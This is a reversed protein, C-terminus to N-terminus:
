ITEVKSLPSKKRALRVRMRWDRSLKIGLPKAAAKLFRTLPNSDDGRGPDPDKGTITTYITMAESIWNHEALNGRRKGVGRIRAWCIEDGLATDARDHLLKAAEAAQVLEVLGGIRAIAQIVISHDRDQGSDALAEAIWDEHGDGIDELKKIGLHGLLKKASQGIQRLKKINASPLGRDPEDRADMYTNAAREFLKARHKVRAVV